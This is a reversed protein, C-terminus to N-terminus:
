ESENVSEDVTDHLRAMDTTVDLIWPVPKSVRFPDVTNTDLQSQQLAELDASNFESRALDLMQEKDNHHQVRADNSNLDGCAEDIDFIDRLFAEYSQDSESTMTDRM